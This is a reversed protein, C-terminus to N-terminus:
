CRKVMLEENAGIEPMIKGIERYGGAGIAGERIIV